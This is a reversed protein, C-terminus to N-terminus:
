MYINDHWQLLSINSNEKVPALVYLSLYSNNLGGVHGAKNYNKSGMGELLSYRIQETYPLRLVM